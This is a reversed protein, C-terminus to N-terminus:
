ETEVDTNGYFLQAFHASYAGFYFCARGGCLFYHERYPMVFYLILFVPLFRFLFELSSFSVM